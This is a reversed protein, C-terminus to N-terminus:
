PKITPTHSSTPLSTMPELRTSSLAPYAARCIVSELFPFSSAL